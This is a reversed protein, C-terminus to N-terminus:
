VQAPRWAYCATRSETNTEVETEVRTEFGDLNIARFGACPRCGSQM